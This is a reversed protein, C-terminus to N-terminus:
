LVSGLILVLVLVPLAAFSGVLVMIVPAMAVARAPVLEPIESDAAVKQYLRVVLWISVAFLAAFYVTLLTVQGPNFGFARSFIVDEAFWIIGAAILYLITRVHAM